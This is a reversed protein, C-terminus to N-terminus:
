FNLPLDSWTCYLVILLEAIDDFAWTEERIRGVELHAEDLALKEWQGLIAQATEALMSVRLIM